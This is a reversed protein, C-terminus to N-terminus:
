NRALGGLVLYIDDASFGELLLTRANFRPMYSDSILKFFLHDGGQAEGFRAGRPM